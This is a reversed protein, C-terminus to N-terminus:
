PTRFARRGRHAIDIAARRSRQGRLGQLLPQSYTVRKTGEPQKLQAVRISRRWAKAASALVWGKASSRQATARPIAGRVQRHDAQRSRHEHFADFRRRRLRNGRGRPVLTLSGRPTSLEGTGRFRIPRETDARGHGLHRHRASAGGLRRHLRPRLRLLVLSAATQHHRDKTCPKM